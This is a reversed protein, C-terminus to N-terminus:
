SSVSTDKSKRSNKKKKRLFCFKQMRLRKKRLGPDTMIRRIEPILGIYHKSQIAKTPHNRNRSWRTQNKKLADEIIKLDNEPPDVSLELLLYYNQRQM